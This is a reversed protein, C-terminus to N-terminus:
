RGQEFLVASFLAQLQANFLYTVRDGCRLAKTDADIHLDAFFRVVLPIRMYRCAHLCVHTYVHTWVHTYHATSM